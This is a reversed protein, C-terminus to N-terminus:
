PVARWLRRNGENDGATLLLRKGGGFFTESTTIGGPGITRMIDGSTLDVLRVATVYGSGAVAVIGGPSIALVRQSSPATYAVTLARTAPTYAYVADLTLVCLAGDTRWALRHPMEVKFEAVKSLRDAWAADIAVPGAPVTATPTATAEITTTPASGGSGGRSCTALLTLTLLAVLAPRM